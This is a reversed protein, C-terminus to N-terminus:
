SERWAKPLKEGHGLLFLETHGCNECVYFKPPTDDNGFMNNIPINRTDRYQGIGCFRCKLKRHEGPLQGGISLANIASDVEALLAQANPLCNEEREVVTKKLLSQVYRLQPNDRFM